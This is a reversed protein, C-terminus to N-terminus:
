AELITAIVEKVQSFTKKDLTDVYKISRNKWDISRVQETMIFGKIKKSKFKLHFVYGRGKSTIPTIFVLGTKQNFEKGTLVLCPRKGKQEHGKAPNLNLWIIDKSNPIYGKM